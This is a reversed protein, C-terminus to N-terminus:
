PERDGSYYYPAVPRQIVARTDDDANIGIRHNIIHNDPGGNFHRTTSPYIDKSMTADAPHYKHAERRLITSGIIGSIIGGSLIAAANGPIMVDTFDVIGCNMCVPPQQYRPDIAADTSKLSVANGGSSTSGARNVEKFPMEADPSPTSTITQIRSSPSNQEAAKNEVYSSQSFVREEAIGPILGIMVSFVLMRCIQRSVGSIRTKSNITNKEKSMILRIPL